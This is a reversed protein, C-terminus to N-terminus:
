ATTSFRPPESIKFYKDLSLKLFLFFLFISIIIFSKMKHSASSITHTLYNYIFDCEHVYWGNYEM